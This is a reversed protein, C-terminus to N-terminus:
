QRAHECRRYDHYDIGQDWLRHWAQTCLEAIGPDSTVALGVGRGDTDVTNFAVIRDDILWYDDCPINAVVGHRPLYRIQEGAAANSSSADLLWRTYDSHPVTVVRVRAVTVGRETLDRVMSCWDRGGQTEVIEGTRRWRVIPEDEDEMGYEDCVEVHVASREAARIYSAYIGEGATDGTVALM